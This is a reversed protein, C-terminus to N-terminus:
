TCDSFTIAGHCHWPRLRVIELVNRNLSDHSAIDKM